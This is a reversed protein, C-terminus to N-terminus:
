IWDSLKTVATAVRDLIQVETCGDYVCQLVDHHVSCELIMLDTYAM